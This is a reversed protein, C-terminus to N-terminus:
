GFDFIEGLGRNAQLFTLLTAVILFAGIIILLGFLARRITNKAAELEAEPQEAFYFILMRVGGLVIFLLAVVAALGLLINYINILLTFIDSITCDLGTCPVIAAQATLPMILAVLVTLELLQKKM